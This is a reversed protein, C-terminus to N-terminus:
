RVTRVELGNVLETGPIAPGLVVTDKDTLGGVIEVNTLNVVGVQVNARVLKKGVLRYVYSTLGDVKLAERPISLVNSRQSVTVRVTVNTNPLLDGHADDVTIICEGVHRTGYTIRTTPAPDVKGHWTRGPKADWFIEVAQGRALKGIEPEDFYALVEIQNLNAVDLLDDGAPVYDYANVAVSYVTGAVPSKISVGSIAQQAAVVGAKADAIRAEAAVRDANSFRGSTRANANSFALNAAALKQKASAVEGQSAAGQDFLRQTVALGSQASQQDAKASAIETNFRNREDASGGANMDLLSSQATALSSQAATLQKRAEGSDMDVLSAGVSVHDGVEVYVKKITGALPAHAPYEGVVAIKGNTPVKSSLTQYSAQAVRVTVVDRTLLRISYIVAIAAAIGAIWLFTTTSRSQEPKAM